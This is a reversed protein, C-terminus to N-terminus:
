PAPKSSAPDEDITSSNLHFRTLGTGDVNVHFIDPTGDRDSAFVVAAGDSTFVPQWDSVPNVLFPTRITGASNIM